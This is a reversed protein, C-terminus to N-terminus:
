LPEPERRALGVASRTGADQLVMGVLTWPAPNWDVRVRVVDGAATDSPDALAAPALDSEVTITWSDACDFNPELDLERKIADCAVAALGTSDAALAVARVAARAGRDMRDATYAAHAISMLGGLVVVLISIALAAEVAVAGRGARLFDEPGAPKRGRRDAPTRRPADAARATGPCAERVRTRIENRM